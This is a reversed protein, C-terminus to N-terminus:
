ADLKLELVAKVGYGGAGFTLGISANGNGNTLSQGALGGNVYWSITRSSAFPEIHAQFTALSNAVIPGSPSSIISVTTGTAAAPTVLVAPAVVLVAALAVLARAIRRGVRGGM